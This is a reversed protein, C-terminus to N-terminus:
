GDPALREGEAAVDQAVLEGRAAHAGHVEGLHLALSAKAAPDRDLRHVVFITGYRDRLINRVNPLETDFRDPISLLGTPKNVVVIDDDSYLEDLKQHKM